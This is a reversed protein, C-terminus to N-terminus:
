RAPNREFSMNEDFTNPNEGTALTMSTRASAAFRRTQWRGSSAAEALHTWAPSHHYTGPAEITMRRLLPHNLRPLGLWFYRDYNSL